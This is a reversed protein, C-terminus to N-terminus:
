MKDVREVYEGTESNVRVIDGENIFLPANVTAGTELVIQKSAGQATNGRVAPPAETVKLEIKIPMRIGVLKENWTLLEIISNPKMFQGRIGVIAETLPFRKAPDDKESFYYQGRNGYLFKVERSDIEAEEAKDAAHFAHEVVRGSILHKLKTQNVPKRMQKRFSHSTLVEYPENEFIIYKGGTIENYELLAM